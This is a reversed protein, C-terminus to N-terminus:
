SLRCCGTTWNSAAWQPWKSGLESLVLIIAAGVQAALKTVWHIDWADDALGTLLILTMAGVIGAIRAPEEFLGSLYPILSAAGLAVVMGGYMALGGWRPKVQTHIDRARISTYIGLHM